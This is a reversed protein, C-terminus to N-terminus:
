RSNSKAAPTKAEIVFSEFQNIAENGIIKGHTELDRLNPDDSQGPKFNKLEVFGLGTLAARLTEPDYLFQHGWSRFTNNLVFIGRNAKIDPFLQDAVFNIYYNQADNKEPLCLRALVQLDPTTLRITGGPKLVRFCERLMAQGSAYDIHEIMHESVIYDFAHDPFPFKQTADLYVVGSSELIFDTNLWGPLISHSAGIHLKRTSHAAFYARIQGGRIIRWYFQKLDLVGARFARVLGVVFGCRKLLQKM